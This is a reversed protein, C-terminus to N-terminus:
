VISKISMDYEDAKESEDILRRMRIVSCKAIVKVILKGIGSCDRGDM